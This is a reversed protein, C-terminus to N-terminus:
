MTHAGFFAQRGCPCGGLMQTRSSVGAEAAIAALSAGPNDALLRAAAEIVVGLSRAADARRGHAKAV